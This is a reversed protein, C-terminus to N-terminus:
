QTLLEPSPRSQPTRKEAHGSARRAALASPCPQNGDPVNAETTNLRRPPKSALYPRQPKSRRHCPTSGICRQSYMIRCKALGVLSTLSRFRIPASPQSATEITDVHPTLSIRKTWGMTRSFRGSGSPTSAFGQASTDQHAHVLRVDAHGFARMAAPACGVSPRGKAGAFDGLCYARSAMRRTVLHRDSM